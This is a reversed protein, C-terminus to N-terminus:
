NVVEVSISTLKATEQSSIAIRSASWTTTGAKRLSVVASEIGSVKLIPTYFHEPIVDKGPVFEAKPWGDTGTAWGAISKQVAEEGGTPFSEETYLNLEVKVEINVDQPLSFKAQQAFGAADIATGTKNGDTRIGAAKCDWVKQAIYNDASAIEGEDQKEVLEDYVAQPIVARVSHGPLGDANTTPEDNRLLNVSAHIQDRLYTLMGDYTALGSTSASNIRSRLADDTEDENRSIGMFAALIDLFQGVAQSRNLMTTIVQMAEMVSYITKAELDIHHGDPSTPSDDLQVGFSTEWADKLAQRINQFGTFRIGNATFEFFQAM